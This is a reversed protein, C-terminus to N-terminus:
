DEPWLDLPCIQEAMEAKESIFCGCEGCKFDERIHCGECVARRANQQEFSALKRTRLYKMQAKLCRIGAMPLHIITKLM